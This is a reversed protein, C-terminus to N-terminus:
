GTRVVHLWGRLTRYAYHQEDTGLSTAVSALWRRATYENHNFPNPRVRVM